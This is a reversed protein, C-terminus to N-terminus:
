SSELKLIAMQSYSGHLYWPSHIVFEIASEIFLNAVFKLIM